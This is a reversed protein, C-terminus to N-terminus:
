TGRPCAVFSRSRRSPRTPASPMSCSRSRSGGCRASRWTAAPWPSRVSRRSGSSTADHRWCCSAEGRRATSHRLGDRGLRPRACPRRSWARGDRQGRACPSAAGRRGDRGERALAYSTSHYGPHLDYAVVEPRIQLFREFREVSAEFFRHTAVHDLDGVHPGLWAQDGRALCFTNKLLAGCALVPRAVPVKLPVARPVYGRSRRLVTVGGGIVRVVSDDAPAEIERDHTLFLDAIHRLRAMAEGNEFALPEDSENGSTMVLPREAAALLLHHLPTYPLMVGVLPNAPAVEPALTTPVRQRALVIPRVVGTLVAREGDTLHALREAAALTPVMVALPKEDRRKRVRLTEVARSSTADCALHFGGLGKVAVILGAELALAAATIADRTPLEVGNAAHLRAVPGCAPCANPEAHFRRDAPSEYERRCEGCMEFAAMTTVARDYPVDRTITYRPGCNTCNTFPYRYRRDRPDELERLCDDCTALDAPISVLPAAAGQSAVIEFGGVPEYPISTLSIEHISAAPPPTHHLLAVFRELGDVPGFVDILVGHGDNHVRGALGAERALRYVWPRFGVGQVIGRVRLRRGELTM